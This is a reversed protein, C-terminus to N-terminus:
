RAASSAARSLGPAAPSGAPAKGDPGPEGPSGPAMGAWLQKLRGLEADFRANIRGTENQQNQVLSEQAALGADIANLRQRMRLPTPSGVQAIERELSKRETKLADIRKKSSEVSQNVTQLAETRAAQHQAENAYRRLLSRDRHATEAQVRREREILRQQEDAAARERESLAPGVTRSTTGSPNLVRQERSQCEPIPRDATLTRGKADVCTFIAARAPSAAVLLLPLTVVVSALPRIWRPQPRRAGAALDPMESATVSM